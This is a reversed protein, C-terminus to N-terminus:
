LFVVTVDNADVAAGGSTDAIGQANTNYYDVGAIMEYMVWDKGNYIYFTRAVNCHVLLLNKYKFHNNTDVADLADMPKTKLANM